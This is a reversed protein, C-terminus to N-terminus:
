GVIVLCEAVGASVAGFARVRFCRVPRFGAEAGDKRCMSVLWVRGRRIAGAAATLADTLERGAFRSIADFRVGEVHDVLGVLDRPVTRTVLQARDAALM